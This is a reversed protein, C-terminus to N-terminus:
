KVLKSMIQEFRKQNDIDMFKRGANSEEYYVDYANSLDIPWFKNSNYDYMINGSHLDGHMIGVDNLDAIMKLFLENANEPLESSVCNALTKGPVELMRLYVSGNKEVVEASGEGYVKLFLQCERQANDKSLRAFSKLVFGKHDVDRRVDGCLGSGLLEGSETGKPFTFHLKLRLKAKGSLESSEEAVIKSLNKVSKSTNSIRSVPLSTTGSNNDDGGHFNISTINANSIIPM